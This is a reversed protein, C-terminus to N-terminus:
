LNYTKWPPPSHFIVGASRYTDTQFTSTTMGMFSGGGRGPTVQGVYLYWHSFSIVNFIKGMFHGRRCNPGGAPKFGKSQVYSSVRYELLLVDNHIPLEKVFLIIIIPKMQGIYLEQNVFCIHFFDGLLCQRQSPIQPGTARKTKNHISNQLIIQVRSQFILCDCMNYWCCVRTLQGGTISLPSRSILFM